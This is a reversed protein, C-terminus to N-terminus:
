LVEQYSAPYERRIAEQRALAEVIRRKADLGAMGLADGTEDWGAGARRAAHMTQWQGGFLLAALEAADSLADLPSVEPTEALGRQLAEGISTPAPATM